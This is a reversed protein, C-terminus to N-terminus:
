LLFRLRPGVEGFGCRQYFDLTRSWAPQDPAGVELRKWGLGRGHEAAASVLAAAVGKSRWEPEVYLETIEGFRGGAYIAACENVMLLGVPRDLCFAALGTVSGSALLERAVPELEAPSCPEGGPLEELLAAVFRATLADDGPSLKQVTISPTSM